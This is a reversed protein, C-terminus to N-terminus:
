VIEQLTMMVMGVEKLLNLNLSPEKSFRELIVAASKERGVEM